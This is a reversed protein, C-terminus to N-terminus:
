VVFLLLLLLLTMLLPSLAPLPTLLKSGKELGVESRFSSTFRTVWMVM